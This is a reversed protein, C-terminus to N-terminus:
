LPICAVSESKWFVGVACLEIDTLDRWEYKAIFIAPLLALLALTYLLDEDKVTGSKRYVSHIYNMRSIAACCKESEPPNQALDVVLVATDATRQSAVSVNAFQKTKALVKSISPIGYPRYLSAALSAEFAFPFEYQQLNKIITHADENTMRALSAADLYIQSFHGNEQKMRQFRLIEVLVLYSILAIIGIAFLAYVTIRSFIGLVTPGDDWPVGDMNNLPLINSPTRQFIKCFSLVKLDVLVFHIDSLQESETSSLAKRPPPHEKKLFSRTPTM